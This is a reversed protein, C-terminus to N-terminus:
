VCTLFGDADLWDITGCGLCFNDICTTADPCPPTLFECALRLCKAPTNGNACTTLGKCMIQRGDLFTKEAKSLMAVPKIFDCLSIRPRKGARIPLVYTVKKKLNTVGCASSFASTVVTLKKGPQLCGKYDFVIRIRYKIINAKPRIRLITASVFSKTTPPYYSRQITPPVCKCASAITVLLVVLISRTIM